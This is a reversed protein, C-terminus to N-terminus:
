LSPSSLIYSLINNYPRYFRPSKYIKCISPWVLIVAPVNVSHFADLSEMLSYNQPKKPGFVANQPPFYKWPNFLILIPIVQKNPSSYSNFTHKPLPVALQPNIDASVCLYIPARSCLPFGHITKNGCFPGCHRFGNFVISTPVKIKVLWNPLWSDINPYIGIRGVFRQFPCINRNPGHLGTIM